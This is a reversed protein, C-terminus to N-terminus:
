RAMLGYCLVLRQSSTPHAVLQGRRCGTVLRSLQAPKKPSGWGSGEQYRWDPRWSLSNESILSSVSPDEERWSWDKVPPEKKKSNVTVLNAGEESLDWEKVAEQKEEETWNWENVPTDEEEADAWAWEETGGEQPIWFGDV